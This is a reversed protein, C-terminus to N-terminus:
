KYDFNPIGNWRRRLVHAALKPSRDRTFLGKRNGGVRMPGQITVFDAFCWVQEGMFFPRKDCEADIRSYYEAQYEESFMGPVGQHIGAVADAGYETLMIPKGQKEWFDLEINWGNCAADLDGGLNYWGYYRNLCVVDMTRTTMDKTYDNQCCVLTVPRDQPDTQHALEYLPHWYDFAEQPYHELDPENGLSWMVVCPHNKDRAILDRIVQEHHEKTGYAYPNRSGGMNLGVAPTEDIIVIGERDCLEYMEAAYPYHSTRFSNAGLWHILNVDKVNLCMDLGRGRFFSDEHKGFGKFYFPKGNLLFRTGSVEVTRLGFAQDYSDEGFTVHATYLYPIGPWPEWLHPEKIELIGKAGVAQAVVTGEADEIQINVRKDPVPHGDPRSGTEVEYEVRGDLGTVLTIDKIYDMPTTYLRVPRFIGAYNFFDFNPRNQLKQEQKAQEVSPIGANDSGFFAPEAPDNGAPLTSHSIRNDAAVTILVSSGPEAIDTIEAEFPLFGGQHTCILRDDLWVKSQHAVADFRLWIRQGKFHRPIELRRQYWAWGYHDRYGEVDKQENYSAPVAIPSSDALNGPMGGCDGHEKGLKFNWIGGLDIIMRSANQKVQLM